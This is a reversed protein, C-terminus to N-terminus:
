LMMDYSGERIVDRGYDFDDEMDAALMGWFKKETMKEDDLDDM